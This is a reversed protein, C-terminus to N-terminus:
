VATKTLSDVIRRRERAVVRSRGPTIQSWYSPPEFGRPGVMWVPLRMRQRPSLLALGSRALDGGRPGRERGLHLGWPALGQWLCAGQERSHLPGPRDRKREV